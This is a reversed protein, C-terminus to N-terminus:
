KLSTNSSYRKQIRTMGRMLPKRPGIQTGERRVLSVSWFLDELHGQFHIEPDM